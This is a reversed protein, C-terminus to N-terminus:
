DSREAMRSECCGVEGIPKRNKCSRGGGQATSSGFIPPQDKAEDVIPYRNVLSYLPIPHPYKEHRLDHLTRGWSRLRNLVNTAQSFEPSSEIFLLFDM